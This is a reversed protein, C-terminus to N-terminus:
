RGFNGIGAFKKPDTSLILNIEPVLEAERVLPLDSDADGQLLIRVTDTSMDRADAPLIAKVSAGPPLRLFAGLAVLSVRVIGLRKDNTM